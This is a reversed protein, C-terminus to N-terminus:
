VRPEAISTGPVPCPNIIWRRQEKIQPLTIRDNIFEVAKSGMEERRPDISACHIGANNSLNINDFGIVSIDGPISIGSFSLYNVLDSCKHDNFCFIGTIQEQTIFLALDKKRYNKIPEELSINWEQKVPINNEQLASCYGRYRDTVIDTRDSPDSVTDMFFAIRRHGNKILEAAALYGGRFNDVIVADTFAGPFESDITVICTGMESATKVLANNTFCSPLRMIIGAARYYGVFNELYHEIKKTSWSLNQIILNYNNKFAAAEISMLVRDFYYINNKDIGPLIVGIINNKVLYKRCIDIDNIYVGKKEVSVLIGEGALEGIARMVTIQNTHLKFALERISPLKGGKKRQAGIIENEIIKRKIAKYTVPIHEASGPIESFINFM